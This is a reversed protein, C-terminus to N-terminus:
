SRQKALIAAVFKSAEKAPNKSQMVSNPIVIGGSKLTKSVTDNTYSNGQVKPTGPIRQGAKIPSKEGAAVKKVEGPPLYREGPSVLAPVRGGHAAAMPTPTASSFLSSLGSGIGKGLTIGGNTAADTSGAKNRAAFSSQNGQTSPAATMPTPNQFFSNGMPPAPMNGAMMQGAMSQPGGTM